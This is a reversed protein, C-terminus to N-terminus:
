ARNRGLTGEEWPAQRLHSLRDDSFDLPEIKQGTVLSLTNIVGRVYIEMKVKRHDGESMIYALWIVATWGWSLERQKWHRPIHKDLIERLGMNEMHAILLVVDDVKETILGIEEKGVSEEGKNEQEIIMKNSRVGM